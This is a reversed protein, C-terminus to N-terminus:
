KLICSKAKQFYDWADQFALESFSIMGFLNYVKALASKNILSENQNDLLKEGYLKASKFNGIAWESQCLGLYSNILSNKDNASKNKSIVESHFKISKDFLGLM